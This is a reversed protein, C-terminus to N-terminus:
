RCPLIIPSTVKGSARGLVCAKLTQPLTRPIDDCRRKLSRLPLVLNPALFIPHLQVGGEGLTGEGPNGALSVAKTKPFCPSAAGGLGLGQWRRARRPAMSRLRSFFVRNEASGAAATPPPRRWVGPESCKEKSWWRLIISKFCIPWCTIRKLTQCLFWARDSRVWKDFAKFTSTVGWIVVSGPFIGHEAPQEMRLAAKSLWSGVRRRDEFAIARARAGSFPLEPILLPKAQPRPPRPVCEFGGHPFGCGLSPATPIPIAALSVELGTGLGLCHGSLSGAIHALM